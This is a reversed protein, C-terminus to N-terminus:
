TVVNKNCIKDKVQNVLRLVIDPPLYTHYNARENTANLNTWHIHHLGRWRSIAKFCLSHKQFYRPAIEVLGANDHLLISWTLGAGHMGLMIDAQGVHELQKGVPLLDLQVGQVVYGAAKLADMVEAENAIKRQITASPNRPHALYDRRLVLLVNLTPCKAQEKPTVGYQKYFFYRLEPLYSITPLEVLWVPSHYGVPIWVMYEFTTQSPLHAARYVNRGGFLTAWPADFKGWPHGDMLLVTSYRPNVRLMIMALFTNYLDTLTHHVNAYEYRTVAFTVGPVFKEPVVGGRAGRGGDSSDDLVVGRPDLTAGRADRADLNRSNNTFRNDGESRCTISTQWSNFHNHRRYNGIGVVFKFQPPQRCPITLAGPKFTFYEDDENQKLVSTINEGGRSGMQLNAPNLTVDRVVAMEGGFVVFSHEPNRETKTIWDCVPYRNLDVTRDPLGMFDLRVTENCRIPSHFASILKESVKKGESPSKTANEDDPPRDKNRESHEGFSPQKNSSPKEFVRKGENTTSPEPARSKFRATLSEIAPSYSIRLYVVLLIAAILLGIKPSWVVKMLM